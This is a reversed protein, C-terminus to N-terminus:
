NLVRGFRDRYKGLLREAEDAWGALNAPTEEHYAANRATRIEHLEQAERGTLRGTGQLTAIANEMTMERWGSNLKGCRVAAYKIIKELERYNLSFRGFTYTYEKSRSGRAILGGGGFILTVISFPFAAVAGFIAGKTIAPKWEDGSVMHQILMVATFCLGFIGVMFVPYCIIGGGSLDFVNWLLDLAIMVGWSLLHVDQTLWYFFTRM